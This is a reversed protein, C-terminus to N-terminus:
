EMTKMLMVESTRFSERKPLSKINMMRGEKLAHWHKILFCQCNLGQFWYKVVRGRDQDLGLWVGKGAVGGAMVGGRCKFVRVLAFKWNETFELWTKGRWTSALAWQPTAPPDGEKPGLGLRAKGAPQAASALMWCSELTFCDSPFVGSCMAAFSFPKAEMKLQNVSNRYTSWHAYLRITGIHWCWLSWQVHIQTVCCLGERGSWTFHSRFCRYVSLAACAWWGLKIYKSDKM